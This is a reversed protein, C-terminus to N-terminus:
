RRLAQTIRSFCTRDQCPGETFETRAGCEPCTVPQDEDDPVFYHHDDEPRTPLANVDSTVEAYVKGNSGLLFPVSDEWEYEAGDSEGIELFGGIPKGTPMPEFAVVEHWPFARIAAVATELVKADQHLQHQQLIATISPARLDPLAYLAVLAELATRLEPWTPVSPKLTAQLATYVLEAQEPTACDAVCEVGGQPLHGYVSWLRANPDNWDCKEYRTVKLPTDDLAVVHNRIDLGVVANVEFADYTTPNNSYDPM